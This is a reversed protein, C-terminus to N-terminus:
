PKVAELRGFLKGGPAKAAPVTIVITDTDADPDDETVDVIVGDTVSDVAGVPVDNAPPFSLDTSWQFVLNAVGESLDKRRFTFVLDGSTEDVTPLLASSDSGPNAPSPEGGLVFELGNRINDNDPDAGFAADGGALGKSATWTDYADGTAATYQLEINLGNQSVAWSGGGTFASDDITVDSVDFGSVGSVAQMIVFTQNSEAFDAPVMGGIRVTLGGATLASFDLDTAVLLDYDTGAVAGLNDAGNWDGIEFEFAAGDSFGVLNTVTATGITSNTLNDPDESDAIGDNDADGDIGPGFAGALDVYMGCTGELLFTGGAEVTVTGFGNTFGQNLGLTGGSVTLNVSSASFVGPRQLVQTGDGQKVIDIFGTNERIERGYNYYEGTGVDITLTSTTSDATNDLSKTNGGGGGTDSLGGITQNTGNLDLIGLTGNNLITVVTGAPLADDITPVLQGTQIITQGTYAHLKDWSFLANNIGGILRLGFDGSIVSSPTWDGETNLGIITDFGGSITADAALSYIDSESWPNAGLANIRLEGGTITIGSFDLTAPTAGLSAPAPADLRGGTLTTTGTYYNAAALTQNGGGFKVLSFNNSGGGSQGLTGLFNYSTGELSDITLTAGGVSDIIAATDLFSALGGVNLDNGALDFINDNLTLASGDPLSGGSFVISGDYITTPGTYSLAGFLTLTNPGTKTVGIDGTLDSTYDFNGSSTDFALASGPEFVASALINDFDSVGLNGTSGGFSAGASVTVLSIDPVAALTDALLTGETVLTEGSWSNSANTLQLVGGGRKNLGGPGSLQGSLIGDIPAAGNESRIGYNTLATPFVLPNVFTVSHTSEASGLQLALTGLDAVFDPDGFTITAGAGGINVTRDDGIAGFGGGATWQVQGAGAGISSTFDAANGTDLDAGINLFPDSGNFIITTDPSLADAALINLSAGTLSTTGTWTNIGSMDVVAGNSLTMDGDGSIDGELTQNGRIDLLAGADIFIANATDGLSGTALLTSGGLISLGGSWTNAPNAITLISGGGGAVNVVMEGVGSIVGNLAYQGNNNAYRRDFTVSGSVLQWDTAYGESGGNNREHLYTCGDVLKVKGFLGISARNGKVTMANQVDLTAGAVGWDAGGPKEGGDFIANGLNESDTLVLTDGSTMFLATDNANNDNVFDLTRGGLDWTAGGSRVAPGEGDVAAKFLVAGSGTPTDILIDGVTVGGSAINLTAGGVGFRATTAGTNDWAVNPASGDDDWNLSTTDWAGTGGDAAQNGDPDWIYQAHAQTLSITLSVLLLQISRNKPKM